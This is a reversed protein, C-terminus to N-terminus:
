WVLQQFNQGGFSEGLAPTHIMIGGWQQSAVDIATKPTCISKVTCVHM